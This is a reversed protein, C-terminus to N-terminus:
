RQFGDRNGARGDIAPALLFTRLLRRPGPESAPLRVHLEGSYSFVIVAFPAPKRRRWGFRIETASETVRKRSRGRRGVPAQPARGPPTKRDLACARGSGFREADPHLATQTRIRRHSPVLFRGACGSSSSTAPLNFFDAATVLEQWKKAEEPPLADTDITVPPRRVGAVFGGSQEFQIRM